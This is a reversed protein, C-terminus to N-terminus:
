NLEELWRAHCSTLHKITIFYELPKHDSFVEITSRVGVLESRWNQLSRMIALMEKDHIEYNCEPATMTKSFFGVPHWLENNLHFQSLIGSIVGNSADTKLITKLDM